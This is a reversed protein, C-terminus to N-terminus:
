ERDPGHRYNSLTPEHDYSRTQTRDHEISQQTQQLHYDRRKRQLDTFNQDKAIDRASMRDGGRNIANKLDDKNDTYIAVSESGRSASVYFQKEDSAQFSEASQAIFVDQADKGQAAHSTEVLGHKFNRFDRSLTKGSSLMVDGQETFGKIAYTQGNHIKTNEMTKGNQTIRITDGKAIPIQTPQYLQFNETKDLPLSLTEQTELSKVAIGKGNENSLVEYHKGAKFSGKQNQHFRVILGEEYSAKDRRQADTLSLNRQTDFIKEDGTIVEREKLEQRVTETLAEGEAHTPSVILASRKQEISVAYDKAIAKHREEQDPIEKIAEMKDLAKFGEMTQGQALKQIAKRYPEPKQRVVKQVTAPTLGANEELLRLGDGAEVSNHQRTDGSLILRANYKEALAFLQDLTKAGIMGAEDCLLVNNQLTKQLEENQLLSAITDANEFGKSRLVNRSANASPATAMLEKGAGEIGAKVESLLSSKGVGAGGKLISVRDNSSLIQTIANRQQENLIENQIEYGTNLPLEKGKGEAAYEIIRDEVSVMEKTTMYTITQKDARLINQRSELEEHVDESKLHGYGLTLAHAAIRKEPVASQREFFHDMGQDVADEVSIQEASKDGKGKAEQITQLEKPTLRDKWLDHLKHDEIAKSKNVRTKAGLQSKAEPDTISKEAALKEIEITRNSFKDRTAKTIGAIEYRDKTCEIKYGIDVLGKSLAATIGLKM